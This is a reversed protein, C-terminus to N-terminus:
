YHSCHSEFGRGRLCLETVVVVVGDRGRVVGLGVVLIVYMYSIHENAIDGHNIQM